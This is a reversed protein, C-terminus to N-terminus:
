AVKQRRGSVGPPNVPLDGAADLSAAKAASMSFAIRRRRRRWAAAFARLTAPPSLAEASTAM